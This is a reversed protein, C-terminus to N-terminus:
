PDSLRVLLQNTQQSVIAIVDLVGDGNLDRLAFDNVIEVEGLMEDAILAQRGGFSGSGDGPFYGVEDYTSFVIDADGDQDLDTIYARNMAGGVALQAAQEYVGDGMGLLVVARLTGSVVCDSIGDGDLDGTALALVRSLDDTPSTVPDALTGTGDNAWVTVVGADTVAIIDAATSGTVDDVLLREIEGAAYATVDFTGGASSLLVSLQQPASMKNSGGAVLDDRGDGDLDAVALANAITPLDPFPLPATIDFYPAVPMGRFLQAMFDDVVLDPHGDGDFDGVAIDGTSPTIPQSSPSFAGDGTGLRVAVDQSTLVDVIGDADVDALHLRQGGGAYEVIDAYCVDGADVAGDGCREVQCDHRCGDGDVTNGDDCTEGSDVVADGCVIQNKEPSSPETGCATLWLVLLCHSTNNM